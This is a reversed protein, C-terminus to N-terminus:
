ACESAQKLSRPRSGIQVTKFIIGSDLEEPGSLCKPQLCLWSLAQPRRSFGSHLQGLAALHRELCPVTRGSAGFSARALWMGALM